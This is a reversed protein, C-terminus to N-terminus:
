HTRAEAESFDTLHPTGRGPPQSPQLCVSPLRVVEDNTAHAVRVLVIEPQRAIKYHVVMIHNPVVPQCFQRGRLKNRDIMVVGENYTFVLAKNDM